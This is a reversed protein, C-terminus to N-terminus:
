KGTPVESEILEGDVEQVNALTVLGDDLELGEDM